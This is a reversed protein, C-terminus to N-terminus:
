GSGAFGSVERTRLFGRLEIVSGTFDIPITKTITSFVNSSALDRELRVSWRGSHVVKADAFITGAPEGKWAKPFGANQQGEFSLGRQSGVRRSNTRSQLTASTSAIYTSCVYACAPAM